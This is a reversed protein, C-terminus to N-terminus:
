TLRRMFAYISGNAVSDTAADNASWFIGTNNLKYAHLQWPNSRGPFACAACIRLIDYIAHMSINDISSLDSHCTGLFFVNSILDLIEYNCFYTILM